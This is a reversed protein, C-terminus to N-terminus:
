LTKEVATIMVVDGESIITGAEPTVSEVIFDDRSGPPTVKYQINLRGLLVKAKGLEMTIIAPVINQREISAPEPVPVIKFKLKSSVELSFNYSNQFSADVPAGYLTIKSSGSSSYDGGISLSLQLEAEAEPIHYWTPRYGIERLSLLAEPNETYIAKYNELAQQDMDKQASAIGRGMEAILDGIPASVMNMLEEPNNQM